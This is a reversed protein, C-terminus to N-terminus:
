YSIGLADRSKIEDINNINVFALNTLSPAVEHFGSM